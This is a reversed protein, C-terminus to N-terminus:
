PSVNEEEDLYLQLSNDKTLKRFYILIRKLLDRFSTEHHGIRDQLARQFNESPNEWISINLLSPELLQAKLDDEIDLEYVLRQIISHFMCIEYHLHTFFDEVCENHTKSSFSHRLPTIIPHSRDMADTIMPAVALAIGLVELGSIM